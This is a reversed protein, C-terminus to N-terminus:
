PSEAAWRCAEVPQRMLGVPLVQGRFAIVHQGFLEHTLHGTRKPMSRAAAAAV